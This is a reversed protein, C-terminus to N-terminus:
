KLIEVLEPDFIVYNSVPPKGTYDTYRLGKIGAANLAASVLAITTMLREQVDQAQFRLPKDLDLFGAPDAHIAVEIVDGHRRAIEPDSTFYLGRGYDNKGSSGNHSFDFKSFRKKSGHYARIM